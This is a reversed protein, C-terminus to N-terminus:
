FLNDIKEELDRMSRERSNSTIKQDKIVGEYKLLDDLDELGVSYISTALDYVSDIQDVEHSMMFEKAEADLEQREAPTAELYEDKAENLKQQFISYGIATGASVLAGSLVKESWNM